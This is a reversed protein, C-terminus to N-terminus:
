AEGCSVSRGNRSRSDFKMHIGTKQRVLQNALPPWQSSEDVRASTWVNIKLRRSRRGLRCREVHCQVEDLDELSLAAHLAIPGTTDLYAYLRILQADHTTTLKTVVRCLRQAAVSIDPRAVRSLFLLTAVHSSASSSFRGPSQGIENLEEFFIYPSTARTLKQCFETKFRQVANAACDDM